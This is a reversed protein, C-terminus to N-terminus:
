RADARVYVSTDVSWQYAARTRHQNAYAYGLLEGARECVLWPWRPGGRDIRGGMEARTPPELEFSIITDRVIPAYIALMAAADDSAALRIRARERTMPRIHYAGGAFSSRSRWM